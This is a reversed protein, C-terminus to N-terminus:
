LMVSLMHSLSLLAHAALLIRQLENWLQGIMM